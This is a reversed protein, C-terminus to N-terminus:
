KIRYDFQKNGRKSLIHFVTVFVISSKDKNKIKM